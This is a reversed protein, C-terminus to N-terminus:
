GMSAIGRPLRRALISTLRTRVLSGILGFSASFVSGSMGESLPPSVCGVLAVGDSAEPVDSVGLGASGAAAM